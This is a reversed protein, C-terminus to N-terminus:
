FACPLAGWLLMAEEGCCVGPGPCAKQSNRLMCFKSVQPNNAMCSGFWFRLVVSFSQVLM